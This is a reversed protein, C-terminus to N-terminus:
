PEQNRPNARNASATRRSAIFIALLETAEQKYPELEARTAIGSQELMELWGVTEDAEEVVISLKAIFTPRTHARCVARYNAAASTASRQLQDAIPRGGPRLRVDLCFRVISCAFAQARDRLHQPNM